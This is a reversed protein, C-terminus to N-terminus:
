EVTVSKALNRPHDVDHGLIDATYYSLMQLVVSSLISMILNNAKPIEICYQYMGDFKSINERSALLIIKGERANVEQVNSVMKSILHEDTAISIIYVDEDILAMPGHKLEGAAVGQANIYSIEKLKLAGELAVPYNLGRGMYMITKKKSIVQAIERIETELSLIKSMLDPLMFMDEINVDSSYGNKSSIYIGLLELLLLQATFSKTSAVGIEIGACIPIIVDSFNAISSQEVNVLGITKIGRNSIMKQAELTDVTEGSQSIFIAISSDNLAPQRYRFESAVDVEVHVGCLNEIRYKAIMGAYYSTGCAVIYITSICKLNISELAEPFNIQNSNVDFYKTLLSKMVYPQEKIEKLMYHKYGHKECVVREIKSIKIPRQMINNDKDFIEYQDKTVVAIDGDKLEIFRDTFESISVMDSSIYNGHKGLGLVLPSGNKVSIIFNKSHFIIALAFLGELQSITKIVSTVEDFGDNLSCDILKTIVETDTEGTFTYGKLLLSEKLSKYNEIIGNHVLSLRDTYIPHANDLSPGGHTAWRTHAIGVKGAIPDEEVVGRLDTIKGLSKRTKIQMQSDIISIGASDYGRYEINQLGKLIDSIVDDSSANAIIGCM